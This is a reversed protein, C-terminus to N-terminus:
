VFRSELVVFIQKWLFVLDNTIFLSTVLLGSRASLLVFKMELHHLAMQLHMYKTSVRCNLSYIFLHRECDAFFVISIYLISSAGTIICVAPLDTDKVVCIINYTIGTPLLSSFLYYWSFVVLYTRRKGVTCYCVCPTM